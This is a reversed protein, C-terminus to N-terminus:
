NSQKGKYKKFIAISIIFLVILLAAFIILEIVPFVSIYVTKVNSLHEQGQTDIVKVYFSYYGTGEDPKFTWSSDGSSLNEGYQSFSTGATENSSYSYWLQASTVESMNFTLRITYENTWKYSDFDSLDPDYQSIEQINKLLKLAQTSSPTEYTNGLLDIVKFYIYYIEDEIMTNWQESTLNWTPTFTAMNLDDTNLPTWENIGEFNMRYSVQKLKYDDKFVVDTFVPIEDTTFEYESAFIPKTPDNPDFVFMVDGTTPFTQENGAKDKAITCLEYEGGKDSGITFDWEYPTTSDTGFLSWQTSSTLRYYLSVDQIGSGTDTAEAEVPVPSFNCFTPIDEENTISSSPKTDDITLTFWDSTNSNKGMDSISFQIRNVDEIDDAFSLDSIDATITVNLKIGNTGTCDADATHTKTGTQDVYEITFTASTVNIGTTNTEVGIDKAKITCTPTPSIIYQSTPTFSSEYFIPKATDIYPVDEFSLWDSFSEYGDIDKISFRIYEFQEVNTISEQESLNVSITERDKSGNVGTCNAPLWDSIQQGSTNVYQLKFKASTNWIGKDDNEVEISCNTPPNGPAEFTNEYFNTESTGGEDLRYSISWEHLIAKGNTNAHFTAKLRITDESHMSLTSLITGDELESLLVHDSEDLISFKVYGNSSETAAFFRDWTYNEDDPLDIPRSIITGTIQENEPLQLNGVCELMGNEATIYVLGDVVIPSSLIPSQSETSMTWYISGDSADIAHLDGDPTGIYLIGNAYAPSSQLYTYSFIGKKYVQKNWLESGTLDYAYLYGDPSAVFVTDDAVAPTNYAAYQYSDAIMDGITQNWLIDGTDIDLAVIKTQATFSTQGPIKAVAFVMDDYIVPSAYGIPGIEAEWIKKGNTNLAILSPGKSNECGVIIKGDSVAPSSFSAAPLDYMWVRSGTDTLCLLKNNGSSFNLLDWVSSKLSSDGSWTTLYIRNNYVIPSSEYCIYPNQSDVDEYEFMWAIGLTAINFGIVLNKVDGANSTTATAVVVTDKETAAPSTKIEFPLTTSEKLKINPKTWGLNELANYALLKKGEDSAIYLVGDQVIPNRQGGGLRDITYWALQKDDEGPGLGPTERTNNPNQGYMPWNNISPLLTVKGDEIKVNRIDDQPVRLDTNFRDKWINDTTQWSFGWSYLEPSTSLDLTTFNAQLCIRYDKPISKLDIPGQTFGDSNGTLNEEDILKITGNDDQYCVHISIDTQPPTYDEWTAYEWHSISTPIVIPSQVIGETAYGEGQVMLNIYDTFLKCKDGFTPTLVVCIDINGNNQIPLDNSLTFSLSLTTMNSSRSAIKEWYGITGFIEQWVYISLDQCNEVKGYWEGQILSTTNIDQTIKFRFHHMRKLASAEAYQALPYYISDKEGLLGYEHTETLENESNQIHLDVPYILNFFLSDFYYVKNQSASTWTSFNYNNETSGDPDLIIKDENPPIICNNLITNQFTETYYVGDTQDIGDALLSQQEEGILHIPFISLLIFTVFLATMKKSSQFLNM